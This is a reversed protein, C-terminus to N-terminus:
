PWPCHSLAAAAVECESPERLPRRGVVSMAWGSCRERSPDISSRRRDWSPAGERRRRDEQPSRQGPHRTGAGDCSRADLQDHVSLRDHQPRDAGPAGARPSLRGAVRNLVQAAMLGSRSAARLRERRRSRNSAKAALKTTAPTTPLSPSRGGPPLEGTKGGEPLQGIFRGGGLPLVTRQSGIRIRGEHRRQARRRQRHHTRWERRRLQRGSHDLRWRLQRTRPNTASVPPGPRLRHACAGRGRGDALRPSRPTHSGAARGVREGRRPRGTCGDGHPSVTGM